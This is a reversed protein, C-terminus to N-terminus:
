LGTLHTPTLFTCLQLHSDLLTKVFEEARKPKEAEEHRRGFRLEQSPVSLM